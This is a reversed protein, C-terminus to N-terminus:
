DETVDPWCSVRLHPCYSCLFGPEPEPALNMTMAEQLKQKRWLIRDEIYANDMLPVEVLHAGLHANKPANNCIPCRYEGNIMRVPVRCARCKTPGSMDIYQIALSSVPRGMNRLMWAYINVQLEHSSYPLKSVFMWRTTKFDVVRGDKYVVDARGVIGDHALAIESDMFADSGEAHAHVATGMWRTIKEHVYEPSPEMKDLFAKKLCGTVDTVHVESQRAVQSADDFLAKLLSYDFGCPPNGTELAHALCKEATM